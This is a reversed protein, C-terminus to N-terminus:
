AKPDLTLVVVLQVYTLLTSKNALSVCQSNLGAWPLCQEKCLLWSQNPVLSM